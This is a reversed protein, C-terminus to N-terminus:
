KVIVKSTEEFGKDSIHFITRTHTKKPPKLDVYRVDIGNDMEVLKKYQTIYLNKHYELKSTLTGGTLITGQHNSSASLIDFQFPETDILKGDPQYMKLVAKATQENDYNWHVTLYGIIYNQELKVKFLPVLFNVHDENVTNTFNANLDLHSLDHYTTIQEFNKFDYDKTLVFLYEGIKDKDIEYYQRNGAKVLKVMPTISDQNIPLNADPINALFNSFGNNTQCYSPICAMLSFLIISVKKIKKSYEM